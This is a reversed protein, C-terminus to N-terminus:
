ATFPPPPELSPADLFPIVASAVLDPSSFIDYHTHGPVIALRAVSRASGDWTADRLGGGLLQYFRVIHEPRIADADAYVLLVAATIKAVDASWDYDQRLLDGTKDLLVPWDQVRPAIQSYIQYMPSQKLPEALQSGMQDMGALSEPYWGDRQCPQSVLVLRRVLRPHQIATRLATAGGFSYGMVDAQALGLHSILGAIDDALTQFRLRRDVDATHGHAQLDVTIVRRDKALLPLIPAYMEGMGLGGHLLILPQGSGHEEYYLNVGNVDAYSM